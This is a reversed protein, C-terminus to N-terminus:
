CPRTSQDERESQRRVGRRVRAKPVLDNASKSKVSLKKPPALFADAPLPEQPAPPPVPSLSRAKWLARQDLTSPANSAAVASLLDLNDGGELRPAAAEM